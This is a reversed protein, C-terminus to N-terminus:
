ESLGRLSYHRVPCTARFTGTPQTCSFPPRIDTKMWSLFPTSFHFYFLNRRLYLLSSVFLAVFNLQRDNTRVEQSPDFTQAMITYSGAALKGDWFNQHWAREGIIRHKVNGVELDESGSFIVFGVAYTQKRAQQMEFTVNVIQKKRRESPSGIEISFWPNKLWSSQHNCCGGAFEPARWRSVFVKHSKWREVEKIHSMRVDSCASLSCSLPFGPKFTFPVIIYKGIDLEIEKVIISRSAIDSTTVHQGSRQTSIMHRNSSTFVSFGIPDLNRAIGPEWHTQNEFIFTVEGKEEMEVYFQKNRWWSENNPFCGGSNAKNIKYSVTSESMHGSKGDEIAFFDSKASTFVSLYYPSEQGRKATIPVIVYPCPSKKLRLKLCCERDIELSADIRNSKLGINFHRKRYKATSSEEHHEVLPGIGFKYISNTARASPLGVNVFVDCDDSILLQYQPNHCSM